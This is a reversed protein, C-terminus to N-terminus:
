INFGKRLCREEMAVTSIVLTSNELGTVEFSLTSKTQEDEDTLGAQKPQNALNLM